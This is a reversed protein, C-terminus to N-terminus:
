ETGSGLPVRTARCGWRDGIRSVPAGPAHRGDQCIDDVADSDMQAVSAGHVVRLLSGESEVRIVDGDEEVQRVSPFVLAPDGFRSVPCLLLGETVQGGYQLRM